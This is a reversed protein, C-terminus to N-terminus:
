AVRARGARSIDDGACARLRRRFSATKPAVPVITGTRRVVPSHHYFFV